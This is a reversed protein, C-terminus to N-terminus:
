LNNEDATAFGDQPLSNWLNLVCFFLKKNTWLGNMLSLKAILEPNKVKLMAQGKASWSLQDVPPCSSAPIGGEGRWSM